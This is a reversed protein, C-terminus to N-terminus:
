AARLGGRQPERLLHQGLGGCATPLGAAAVPSSPTPAALALRGLRHHHWSHRSRSCSARCYPQHREAPVAASATAPGFPSQNPATQYTAAVAAARTRTSRVSQQIACPQEPDERGRGRLQGLLSLQQHLLNLRVHRLLPATRCSRSRRAPGVSVGPGESPPAHERTLVIVRGPVFSTFLSFTVHTVCSAAYRALRSQAPM